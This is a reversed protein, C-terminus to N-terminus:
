KLKIFLAIYLLFSAEFSVFILRTCNLIRVELKFLYNLLILRIKKFLMKSNVRLAIKRINEVRKINERRQRGSVKVPGAVDGEM